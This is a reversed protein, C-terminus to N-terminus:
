SQHPSADPPRSPSAPPDAPVLALGDFAITTIADSLQAADVAGGPRHWEVLSNVMGFLLRSVLVPSVDSRLSGEDVAEQV